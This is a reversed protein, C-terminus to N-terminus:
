NIFFLNESHDRRQSLTTNFSEPAIGIPILCIIKESEPLDIIKFLSAEEDISKGWNAPCNAIKYYHLSYLLNMLYIGGDIYLQNREGISYYFQRDNTLILIQKVNHSYGSFGAQVELVKDILDKSQIVYVNSAQRNCVSPSTNALKIVKEILDIPIIEGTFDRVSKRSSAFLRFNSEVDKYFLERDWSYIGSFKVDYNTNLISKYNEYQEITYFDSVDFNQALHNEYYRCMVQYGVKVQSNHVNRIVDKDNLIKHLNVVKDKGFGSKMEKFLLGKELGHYNLILDAEKKKFNEIKFVISYRKYLRFDAIYNRFMDISKKPNKVLFHYAPKLFKKIKNKM